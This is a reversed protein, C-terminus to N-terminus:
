NQNPLCVVLVTKLLIKLDLWLSQHSVYILDFRLKDRWDTHYGAYVQALGTIGPRVQHRKAYTPCIAQFQSVFVPREPRPGVLSMEGRLVNWLQPIEDLRCARLHGGLKTLRFDQKGESLVPGTEAEANHIMTRFKYVTFPMGYRGIREQAFIVPGSSTLKILLAVVFMLPALFILGLGAVTLDFFRKLNESARGVDTILRVLAIDGYSEVSGVHMLAEYSSPVVRVQVHPYSNLLDEALRQQWTPAYAFFVEDIRHEQILSETSERGGLMTLGEQDSIDALDDVFGVVQYKGKAELSQALSRGVSGAGIILCRIPVAASQAYSQEPDAEATRPRHQREERELVIPAMVIAGLLCALALIFPVRYAGPIWAAAGVAVAVFAYKVPPMTIM